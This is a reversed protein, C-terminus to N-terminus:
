LRQNRRFKSSVIVEGIINELLYYVELVGRGGALVGINGLKLIDGSFVRYITSSLSVCVYTCTCAIYMYLIICMDICECGKM